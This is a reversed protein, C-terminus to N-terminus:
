AGGPETEQEPEPGGAETEMRKLVVRARNRLLGKPEWAVFDRLLNINFVSPEARSLHGLCALRRLPHPSFLERQSRELQDRVVWAAVAAAAGVALLTFGATKLAKNM